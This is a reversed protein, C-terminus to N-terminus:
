YKKLNKGGIEKIVALKSINNLFWGWFGSKLSKGM